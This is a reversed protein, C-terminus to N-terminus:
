QKTWRSSCLIRKWYEAAKGSDTKRHKKQRIRACYSTRTVLCVFTGLEVGLKVVPRQTWSWTLSILHYRQVAAVLPCVTWEGPSIHTHLTETSHYPCPLVSYSPLLDTGTGSQRSCIRCPSVQIRFQSGSHSAPSCVDSSHCPRDCPTPPPWSQSPASERTQKKGKTIQEKM